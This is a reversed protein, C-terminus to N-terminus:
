ERVRSQFEERTIAYRATPQGDEPNGQGVYRLGCKVMVRISAALTPLTEATVRVVVPDQFAWNILQQAAETAYGRRHFAPLLSYGIECSGSAPRGKFGASGILQREPELAVLYWLGWGTAEPDRRLLDIYWRQSSEDNLPPPWRSPERVDLLAAFRALDLVEM